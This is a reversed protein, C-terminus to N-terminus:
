PTICWFVSTRLRQAAVVKVSSWKPFDRLYEEFSKQSGLLMDFVTVLTPGPEISESEFVFDWPTERFILKFPPSARVRSPTDLESVLNMDMILTVRVHTLMVESKNYIGLAFVFGEDPPLFSYHEQKEYFVLNALQQMSRPTHRQEPKIMQVPPPPYAYLSTPEFLFLGVELKEGEKSFVDRISAGFIQFIASLLSLFSITATLWASSPFIFSIIFFAVAAVVSLTLFAKSARPLSRVM